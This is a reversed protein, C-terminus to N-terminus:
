KEVEIKQLFSIMEDKIRKKTAQDIAKLHTIKSILKQKKLEMFVPISTLAFFNKFECELLEKIFDIVNTVGWYGYWDTQKDNEGCPVEDPKLYQMTTKKMMKGFNNKELEIKIKKLDDEKIGCHCIFILNETLVNASKLKKNNM